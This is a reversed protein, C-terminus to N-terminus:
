QFLQKNFRGIGERVEYGFVGTTFGVVVAYIAVYMIFTELVLGTSLLLFIGFIAKVAGVAVLWMYGNMDSRYVMAMIAEVVGTIIVYAGVLTIVTTLAADLFFLLAVGAALSYFGLFALYGAGRGGETEGSAALMQTVGVIAAYAAFTMVILSQSMGTLFFLVLGAILTIVGSTILSAGSLKNTEM